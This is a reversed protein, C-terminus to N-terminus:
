FDPSYPEGSSHRPPQPPWGAPREPPVRGPPPTAPGPGYQPAQGYQPAPAAGSTYQGAQAADYGYSARPAPGPGYQAAQAAGPGYQPASGAGPAYPASPVGGPGQPSRAAATGRAHGAPRPKTKGMAAMILYGVAAVPIVFIWVPFYYTGTTQKAVYIGYGVFFAGGLFAYIRNKASKGSAAFGTIVLIVGSIVSFITYGNWTM